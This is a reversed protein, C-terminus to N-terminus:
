QLACSGNELDCLVKRIGPARPTASIAVGVVSAQDIASCASTQPVAPAEDSALDAIAYATYAGAERLCATEASRRAYEQYAPAAAAVLIGIIAVVIMLEILTFGLSDAKQM